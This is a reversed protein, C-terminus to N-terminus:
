SRRRTLKEVGEMFSRSSRKGDTRKESKEPPKNPTKLLLFQQAEFYSRIDTDSFASFGKTLVFAKRLFFARTAPDEEFSKEKLAFHKPTGSELPEDNIVYYVKALELLTKAEAMFRTREDLRDLLGFLEVIDGRNGADRMRDIYARLDEPRLNLNAFDAALEAEVGRAAPMKLPEDFEYWDNGLADTRIHQATFEVGEPSTWKREKLEPM